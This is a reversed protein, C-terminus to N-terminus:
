FLRNIRLDTKRLSYAKTLCHIEDVHQTCNRKGYEETYKNDDIYSSKFRSGNIWLHTHTHTTTTTTITTTHTHTYKIVYGKLHQKKKETKLENSM